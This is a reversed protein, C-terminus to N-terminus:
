QGSEYEPLVKEITTYIVPGSDLSAVHKQVETFFKRIVPDDNHFYQMHSLVVLTQKEKLPIGSYNAKFNDILKTSNPGYNSSNDGNNPFEWLGVNVAGAVSMDYISPKYPKTTSYLSWPVQMAKTGFVVRDRGSSDVKFGNKVLIKLQEVSIQWGGARYVKPVPLGHAAFQAKAWVIMQEFEEATYATTAVDHGTAGGSWNPEKKETLGVAKIMDYWMHLHLQIEDGNKAKRNLVWNTLYKAREATMGAVYIRPNFYHTIPVNYESAVKEVSQLWREEVPDGEWDISWNVYLPWSVYFKQRPTLIKQGDSIGDIQVSYEGVDLTSVNIDFAFLNPATNVMPSTQIKRSKSDFLSLTAASLTKRLDETVTIKTTKYLPDLTQGGKLLWKRSLALNLPHKMEAGMVIRYDGSSIATLNSSPTFFDERFVNGYYFYYYSNSERVGIQDNLRFTLATTDTNPNKIDFLVLQFKSNRDLYVLKLDRANPLSLGSRVMSSHDFTFSITDTTNLPNNEHLNEITLKKYFGFEDSWWSEIRNDLPKLAINATQEGLNQRDKKTPNENSNFVLLYVVIGIGICLLLMAIIPRLILGKQSIPEFGQNKYGMSRFQTADHIKNRTPLMNM